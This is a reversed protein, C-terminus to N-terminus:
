NLEHRESQIIAGKIEGAEQREMGKRKSKEGV